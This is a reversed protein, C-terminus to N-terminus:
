TDGSAAPETEPEPPLLPELRAAEARAEARAEPRHREAYLILESWTGHAARLDGREEFLRASRRYAEVALDPYARYMNYVRQHYAIARDPRGSAEMVAALGAVAEAHPRGRAERLRLLEEFVEQARSHRRDTALARGLLLRAEVARPHMPLEGLLRELWPVAESPQDVRLALRANGLYALGRRPSAPFETLLTNLFDEASFFDLEALRLGVLGLEEPGLREPRTREAVAIVLADAEDERGNARLRDARYLDLRALLTEKGKRRAKDSQTSIWTEFPEAAFPDGTDERALRAHLRELSGLIAQIEDQGRDDGFRDLAEIFVPLAKDLHGRQLQAWGLWYLAEGLRPHFELDSRRAYAAFHAAMAEHDERARHIKGVQFVAYPFLRGADPGVAIFTEVAEDLRAMGMLIDGRLVRVEAKYSDEPYSRLYDDVAELAEDYRRLGYLSAGKRYRVEPALHHDRPLRDALTRFEGLAEAYNDEFFWALAHWLAANDALPENGAHEQFSAFDLRAAPYADLFLYNFGRTFLWRSWLRHGRFGDILRTLVEIADAHRQLQQYANAILFLAAPTESSDPYRELFSDAVELADDWAGRKQLALIWRYHAEERIDGPWEGEALDGFVIAAERARGDGLFAMGYRLLFAPTYDEAADLQELLAELRAMLGKYYEIWVAAAGADLTARRAAFTRRTEELRAAQLARLTDLPPVMRYATIARSTEGADLWADGMHLAAFALVSREPMTAVAWASGLLIDGALATEGSELALQLARLRAQQRLTFAAHANDYLANLVRIAEGLNGRREELAAVRLTAVAAEQTRPFRRVYQGFTDIARAKDGTGQYAQALAFLVFPLKGEEAAFGELFREFEHIADGPRETLLFAYGRMPLIAAQLSDARYEPERGFTREMEEFLTAAVAYDGASFAAVSQQLLSELTQGRQAQAAPAAFFMLLCVAAAAGACWGPLRRRDGDHKVQWGGNERTDVFFRLFVM